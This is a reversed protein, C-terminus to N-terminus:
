CSISSCFLFFFLFILRWHGFNQPYNKRKQTSKNLDIIFLIRNFHLFCLKFLSNTNCMCILVIYLFFKLCFRLFHQLQYSTVFICNIQFYKVKVGKLYLRSFGSSLKFLSVMGFRKCSGVPMQM